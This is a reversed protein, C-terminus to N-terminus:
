KAFETPTIGTVKKFVKSFYFANEFGLMDAVEYLKYEGEVMLRKAEDIKCSTVYENFGQDNYKKFLQSLYNPSIGFVAAVENLSLRQSVNEKIYRKVQTVVPKRNEKKHEVFYTCLGNKFHILWTIIQEVSTLKYLSMYGESQNSFIELVIDEGRPILSLSLYLINSACDMAQVFYGTNAGFLDIINDITNSLTNADYSEYARALDNKFISFNFSKNYKEKASDESFMVVNHELTALNYADRAYQYSECIAIPEEVLSGVGSCLWVNYYSHLTDSVQGIVEAIRKCDRDELTFIVAFHHLDLMITYTKGYKALLESAMQFTSNYLGLTTEDSMLDTHNTKIENYVCVYGRHTFDLRLEKAQLEFQEKDVFLNHLLNIFFKEHYLSLTKDAEIASNANSGSNVARNKLNKIIKEVSEKLIDPTLELKILYDCVSLQLAERALAFDEYSTLVIFYPGNEKYEEICKAALELGSMVPMKIDTIVIDPKNKEIIDWAVQGNAAVGIIEIDMSSWPLMSKIGVQVLPEDDVILIKYM